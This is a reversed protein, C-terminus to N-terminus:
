FAYGINVFLSPNYNRNSVNLSIDIPGVLSNLSYALGGGYTFISNFLLEEFLNSEVAINTKLTIYHKPFIQYRIDFRGYALNRSLSATMPLGVFNRKNKFSTYGDGGLMYFYGTNEIGGWSGGLFVSPLLTFKKTVSVVSALEANVYFASKM